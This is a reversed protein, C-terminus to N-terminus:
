GVKNEVRMINIIGDKDVTGDFKGDCESIM